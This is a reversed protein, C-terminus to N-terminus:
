HLVILNIMHTLPLNMIISLGEFSSEWFIWCSTEIQSLWSLKSQYSIHLSSWWLCSFFFIIKSIVITIIVKLQSLVRFSYNNTKKSEVKCTVWHPTTSCIMFQTFNLACTFHNLIYNPLQLCLNITKTWQRGFTQPYRHYTIFIISISDLPM